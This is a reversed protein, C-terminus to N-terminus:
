AKAEVGDNDDNAIFSGIIGEANGKFPCRSSGLKGKVQQHPRPLLQKRIRVLGLSDTPKEM